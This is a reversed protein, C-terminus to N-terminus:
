DGRLAINPDVRAARFAPGAAALWGVMMLLFAVGGFVLPDRAPQNFMLEQAWPAAWLAFGSGVVVGVAILALGRGVVFRTVRSMSAGLAIRIGLDRTRQAVDYAIMSYLGIAALVLALGGFAVFMTTGFKWARLNPDVLAMLPVVSVYAAGPMEQQLRARIAPMVAAPEGEVRVLVQPDLVGDYQAVPIFYSFERADAFSRFRM